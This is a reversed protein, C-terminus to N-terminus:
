GGGLRFLIGAEPVRNTRRAALLSERSPMKKLNGLAPDHLLAVLEVLITFIQLHPVRRSSSTALHRRGRGSTVALSTRPREDSSAEHHCVACIPLRWIAHSAFPPTRPALTSSVLAYLSRLIFFICPTQAPMRCDGHTCLLASPIRQRPDHHPRALYVCRAIVHSTNISSAPRQKGKVTGACADADVRGM